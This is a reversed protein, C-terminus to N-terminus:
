LDIRFRIGQESGLEPPTVFEGLAVGGNKLIVRQSALFDQRTALTVFPMGLARAEQLMLALARTAVGFGQRWPVVAYGIHGLCTPPLDTTGAQWRLGITGCFGEDWIWRLISPLRAVTSGDPCLIPPGKAQPDQALAIYESPREQALEIALTRGREGLMPNPNFGLRLADLYDRIQAPNPQILQTM